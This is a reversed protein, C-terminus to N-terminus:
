ETDCARHAWTQADGATFDLYEMVGLADWGTPHRYTLDVGASGGEIADGGVRVSLPLVFACATSGPSVL